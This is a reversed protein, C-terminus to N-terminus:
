YGYMGQSGPMMSGGMMGGMGMGGPMGNNYMGQNGPMMGNGMMMGGNMSPYYGGNNMMGGQQMMGGNMMGQNNPMMNNYMGQPGFAPMPLQVNPFGQSMIGNQMFAMQQQKIPSSVMPIMAPMMASQFRYPFNWPQIQSIMSQVAGPQIMPRFTAQGMRSIDNVRNTMIQDRVSYRIQNVPSMGNGMSQNLLSLNQNAMGIAGNYQQQQPLTQIGQMVVQRLDLMPMGGQQQMGSNGPMTGGMGIGGPMGSNMGSNYGSQVGAGAYTGALSNPNVPMNFGSSMPNMGGMMPNVGVNGMGMDGPNSGGAWASGAAVLCIVSLGLAVKITKKM